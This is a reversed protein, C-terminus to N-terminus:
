RSGPLQQCLSQHLVTGDSLIVEGQQPSAIVQERKYLGKSKLDEIRAALDGAFERTM